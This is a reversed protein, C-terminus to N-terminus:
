DKSVDIIRGKRDQIAQIGTANTQPLILERNMDTIQYLPLEIKYPDVLFQATAWQVPFIKNRLQISMTFCVNDAFNSNEDAKPVNFRLVPKSNPAPEGITLSKEIFVGSPFHATISITGAPAACGDNVMALAIEQSGDENFRRWVISPRIKYGINKALYELKTPKYQHLLIADWVNFGLSTYSAGTDVYRQILDDEGMACATTRPSLTAMFPEWLLVQGGKLAAANEWEYLSFDHMFYDRRLWVKGDSFHKMGAEYDLHHMNLVAPTNTFADLHMTILRDVVEENNEPVLCVPAGDPRDLTDFHHAEGWHGYGSIDVFELNLDNDFRQSLLQLLEGWWTFFAEDYKPFLKPYPEMPILGHIYPTFSLKERLFDPVSTDYRCHPSSHMIRLGWRKNNKEVAELMWEFAPPITLKGSETHIDRWEMRFYYLDVYPLKLFKEFSERDLTRNNDYVETYQWVPTSLASHQHDSFVYGIQGMGPNPVHARSKNFYGLHITKDHKM